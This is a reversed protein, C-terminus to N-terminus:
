EREQQTEKDLLPWTMFEFGLIEGEVDVDINVVAPVDAYTRHHPHGTVRLYAIKNSPDVILRPVVDEQIWKGERRVLRTREGNPNEWSIKWINEDQAAHQVAEPLSDFVEITGDYHRTQYAIEENDNPSPM